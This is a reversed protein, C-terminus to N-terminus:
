GTLHSGGSRDALEGSIVRKVSRQKTKKRGVM